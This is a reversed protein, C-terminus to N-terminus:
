KIVWGDECKVQKVKDWFNYRKGYTSNFLKIKREMEEITNNPCEIHYISDVGIIWNFPTESDLKPFYVHQIEAGDFAKEEIHVIDENLYLTEIDCVSFAFGRIQILDKPLKLIGFRCGSFAEEQIERIHDPMINDLVSTNIDFREFLFYPPVYHLKQLPNTVSLITGTFGGVYFADSTHQMDKELLHYLYTWSDETNKNIEDRHKQIFEKLYNNM